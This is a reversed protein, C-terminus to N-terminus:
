RPLKMQISPVLSWGSTVFASVYCRRLTSQLAIIM